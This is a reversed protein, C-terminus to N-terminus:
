MPPPPVFGGGGRQGGRGRGRPRGRHGGRFVGDDPRGLYGQGADAGPLAYAQGAASPGGRQGSAHQPHSGRQFGRHAQGGRGRGRAAYPRQGAASGEASQADANRPLRVAQGSAGGDASPTGDVGEQRQRGKRDRREKKEGPPKPPPPPGPDYFPNHPHWIMHPATDVTPEYAIGEFLDFSYFAPLPIPDVTKTLPHLRKYLTLGSHSDNAADISIHLILTIPFNVTIREECEQQAESLYAEWNSRTIRGKTLTLEEYTECLRQLGIPQVYKGKWRANDVTRALLALDVCNRVNVRWDNWLKKCDGLRYEVIPVISYSESYRTYRSWGESLGSEM